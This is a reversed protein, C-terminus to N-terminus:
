AIVSNKPRILSSPAVIAASAEKRGPLLDDASGRDRMERQDLRRHFGSRFASASNLPKWRRRQSADRLRYATLSARARGGAFGARCCWTATNADQMEELCLPHPALYVLNRPAEGMVRYPPGCRIAMATALGICHLHSYVGGFCYARAADAASPGLTRLSKGPPLHM